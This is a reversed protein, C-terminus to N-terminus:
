RNITHHRPHSFANLLAVLVISGILSWIFGSWTFSTYSTGATRFLSAIFSGIFSGIIGIIISGLIGEERGAIRSAIWGVIGGIIIFMVISM